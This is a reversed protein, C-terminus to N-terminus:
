WLLRLLGGAGPHWLGGQLHDARLRGTPFPACLLEFYLDDSPRSTLRQRVLAARQLARGSGVARLCVSTTSLWAPRSICGGPPAAICAKGGPLLERGTCHVVGVGRMGRLVQVNAINNRNWTPAQLPAPCCAPTFGRPRSEAALLPSGSGAWHFGTRWGLGLAGAGRASFCVLFTNTFRMIVMNQTM